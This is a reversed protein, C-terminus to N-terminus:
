KSLYQLGILDRVCKRLYKVTILRLNHLAQPHSPFHTSVNRLVLMRHCNHLQVIYQQAQSYKKGTKNNVPACSSPSGFLSFESYGVAANRLSHDASWLHDEPEARTTRKSQVHIFFSLFFLILTFQTDCVITSFRVCFNSFRQGV